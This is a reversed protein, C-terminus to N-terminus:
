ELLVWLWRIIYSKSFLPVLPSFSRHHYNPLDAHEILSIASYPRPALGCDESPDDCKLDIWTMSCASLRSAGIVLILHTVWDTTWATLGGLSWRRSRSVTVELWPAHQYNTLGLLLKPTPRGTASYLGHARRSSGAALVEDVHGIEWQFLRWLSWHCVICM